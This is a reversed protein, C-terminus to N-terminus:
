INSYHYCQIYLLLTKFSLLQSTINYVQYHKTTIVMVLQEHKTAIVMIFGLTKLQCLWVYHIRTYHTAMIGLTILLWTIFYSYRIQTAM